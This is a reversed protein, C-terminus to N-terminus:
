GNKASFDNAERRDKVEAVFFEFSTNDGIDKCSLLENTKSDRLGHNATVDQAELSCRHLCLIAFM